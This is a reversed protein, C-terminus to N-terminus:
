CFTSIFSSIVVVDLNFGEEIIDNVSKRYTQIDNGREFSNNFCYM